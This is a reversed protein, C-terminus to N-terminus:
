TWPAEPTDTTLQENHTTPAAGQPQGAKDALKQWKKLYRIALSCKVIARGKENRQIATLIDRIINCFIECLNGFDYHYRPM